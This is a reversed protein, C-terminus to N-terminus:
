YHLAEERRGPVTDMRATSVLTGLEASDKWPYRCTKVAVEADGAVCHWATRNRGIGLAMHGVVYRVM